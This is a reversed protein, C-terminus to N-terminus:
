AYPAQADRPRVGPRPKRGLSSPVNVYTVEVPDAVTIELHANADESAERWVLPGYELAFMGEARGIDLQEPAAENSAGASPKHPPTSM